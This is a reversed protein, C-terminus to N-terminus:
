CLCICGYKALLQLGLLYWICCVCCISFAVFFQQYDSLIWFFFSFISRTWNLKLSHRFQTRINQWTDFYKKKIRFFSNFRISSIMERMFHMLAHSFICSLVIRIPDVFLFLVASDLRFSQRWLSKGMELEIWLKNASISRTYFNSHGFFLFRERFINNVVIFYFFHIETTDM